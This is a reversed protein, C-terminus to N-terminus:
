SAQASRPGRLLPSGGEGEGEDSIGYPFYHLHSEQNPKRVESYCPVYFWSVIYGSYCLSSFSGLLVLFNGSLLSNEPHQLKKVASPKLNESWAGLPRVSM